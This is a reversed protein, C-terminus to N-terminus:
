KNHKELFKGMVELKTWHIAYLQERYERIEVGNTIGRRNVAREETKIGM